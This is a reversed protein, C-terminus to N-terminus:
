KTPGAPTSGALVEGVGLTRAVPVGRGALILTISHRCNQYSIKYLFHLHAIKQRPSKGM